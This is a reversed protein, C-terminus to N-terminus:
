PAAARLRRLVCLSLSGPPRGCSPAWASRRKRCTPSRVSSSSSSFLHAGRTPCSEAWLIGTQCPLWCRRPPACSSSPRWTRTSWCRRRLAALLRLAFGSRAVRAAESRAARAKANCFLAALFGCVAPFFARIKDREFADNDLVKLAAGVQCFLASVVLQAVLVLSPVPLLHLAMKNIVLMVSNCGGFALIGVLTKKDWLSEAERGDHALGAPHHEADGHAVPVASHPAAGGATM